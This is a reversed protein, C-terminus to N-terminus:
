LNISTTYCFRGSQSTQIGKPKAENKKQRICICVPYWTIHRTCDAQVRSLRTVQTVDFDIGTDWNVMKDVFWTKVINNSIHTRIYRKLNLVGYICRKQDLLLIIGTQRSQSFKQDNRHLFSLPIKIIHFFSIIGSQCTYHYPFIALCITTRLRTFSIAFRWQRGIIQPQNKKCGFDYHLCFSTPKIKKISNTVCFSLSLKLDPILAHGENVCRFNKKWSLSDM